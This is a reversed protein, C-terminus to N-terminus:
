FAFLLVFKNMVALNQDNNFMRLATVIDDNAFGMEKL